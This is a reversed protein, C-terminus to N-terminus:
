SESPLLDPAFQVRSFAPGLVTALTRATLTEGTRSINEAPAHGRALLAM